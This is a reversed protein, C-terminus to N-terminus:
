EIQVSKRMLNLYLIEDFAFWCELWPPIEHTCSYVLKGSHPFPFSHAIGGTGLLPFPPPYFNNFFPQCHSPMCLIGFYNIYNWASRSFSKKDGAELPMVLPPPAFSCQEWFWSTPPPLAVGGERGFFPWFLDLFFHCLWNLVDQRRGQGEDKFSCLRTPIFCYCTQISRYFLFFPVNVQIVQSM